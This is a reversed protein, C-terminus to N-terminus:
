INTNLYVLHPFDYCVSLLDIKGDSNFIIESGIPMQDKIEVNRILEIKNDENIKWVNVYCDDGSSVFLNMVSTLSNVIRLHAGISAIEEHTVLDFLKIEGNTFGAVCISRPTSLTTLALCPFLSSNGNYKAILEVLNDDKIKLIIIEGNEFGACIYNTVYEYSLSTVAIEDNSFIIKSRWSQGSGTVLFIQGYNDGCVVASYAKTKDNFIYGTVAQFYYPKEKNKTKSPIQTLLRNGDNSFLKFGGYLGVAVYIVGNINIYKCILM